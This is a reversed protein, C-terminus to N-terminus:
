FYFLYFLLWYPSDYILGITVDRTSFVLGWCLRYLAFAFFVGIYLHKDLFFFFFGLIYCVLVLGLVSCVLGVTVDSAAQEDDDYSARGEDDDRM